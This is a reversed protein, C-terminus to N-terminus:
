IVAKNDTPTPLNSSGVEQGGTLRALRAAGCGSIFNLLVKLFSIEEYKQYSASIGFFLFDKIKTIKRPDVIKIFDKIEFFRSRAAGCGSLLIEFNM